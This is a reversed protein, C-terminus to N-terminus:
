RVANELFSELHREPLLVMQFGTIAQLTLAGDLFQISAFHMLDFGSGDVRHIVVIFMTDVGFRAHTHDARKDWCQRACFCM